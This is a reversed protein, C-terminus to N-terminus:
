PVPGSITTGWTRRCVFVMTCSDSGRPIFPANVTRAML